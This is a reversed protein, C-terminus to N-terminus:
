TPQSRSEQRLYLLTLVGQSFLGSSVILLYYEVDHSRTVHMAHAIGLAMLCAGGIRILRRLM